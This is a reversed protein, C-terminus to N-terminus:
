KTVVLPFMFSTKSHKSVTLFGLYLDFVQAVIPLMFRDEDEIMGLALYGYFSLPYDPQREEGLEKFSSRISNLVKTLEDDNEKEKLNIDIEDKMLNTLLHAILITRSVSAEPLNDAIM